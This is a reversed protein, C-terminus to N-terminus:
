ASGTWSIWCKTVAEEEKLGFLCGWRKIKYREYPLYFKKITSACYVKVTDLHPLVLTNFINKNVNKIKRNSKVCLNQIM